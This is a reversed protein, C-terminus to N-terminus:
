FYTPIFETRAASDIPRDWHEEVDILSGIHWGSSLNSLERGLVFSCPDLGCISGIQGTDDRGFPDLVEDRVVIAEALTRTSDIQGPGDRDHVREFGFFDQVNL